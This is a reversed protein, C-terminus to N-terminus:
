KKEHDRIIKLYKQPDKNFDKICSKCCLKVEQGDKVIVVPKGMEGLTDGSVVCTKLNAPYPTVKSSKDKDMAMLSTATLFFALALISKM